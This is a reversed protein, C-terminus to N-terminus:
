YSPIDFRRGSLNTREQEGEAEDEESVSVERPFLKTVFLYKVRKNGM